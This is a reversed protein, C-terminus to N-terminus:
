QIVLCDVDARVTATQPAAFSWQFDRVVSATISQGPKITPGHPIELDSTSRNSICLPQTGQRADPMFVTLTTSPRSLALTCGISLALFIGVVTLKM